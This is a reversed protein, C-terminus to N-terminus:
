LVTGKFQRKVGPERVCREGLYSSAQRRSRSSYVGCQLVATMKQNMKERQQASAVHHSKQDRDARRTPRLSAQASYPPVARVTLSQLLQALKAFAPAM